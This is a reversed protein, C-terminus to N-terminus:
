SIRSKKLARRLSYGVAQNNGLGLALGGKKKDSPRPDEYVEDEPDQSSEQTPTFEGDEDDQTSPPPIPFRVVPRINRFRPLRIDPGSVFPGSEETLFLRLESVNTTEKGNAKRVCEDEWEIRLGTRNSTKRHVSNAPLRGTGRRFNLLRLAERPAHTHGEAKTNQEDAGEDDDKKTERDELYKAKKALRRLPSSGCDSSSSTARRNRKPAQNIAM